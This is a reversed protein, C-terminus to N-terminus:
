LLEATEAEIAEPTAPDLTAAVQQELERRFAREALALCQKFKDPTVPRKLADALRLAHMNALETPYTQQIRLASFLPRERNAYQQHELVHIARDHLCTRWSTLWRLAAATETEGPTPLPVGRAEASRDALRRMFDRLRGGPSTTGQYGKKILHVLLTRLIVDGSAATGAPTDPSRFALYSRLAPVYRLAFGAPNRVSTWAVAAITEDGPTTM